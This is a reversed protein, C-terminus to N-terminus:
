PLPNTFERVQLTMNDRDLLHAASLPCYTGALTTATRLARSCYAALAERGRCRQTLTRILITILILLLTSLTNLM